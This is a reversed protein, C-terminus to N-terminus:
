AFKNFYLDLREKDENEKVGKYYIEVFIIKSGEPLYLYIIRLGTKVGKGKFSKSAIKKVKYSIVKETCFGPIAFIGGSDM